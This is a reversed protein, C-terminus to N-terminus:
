CPPKTQDWVVSSLLPHGDPSWAPGIEESPSKTRRLPSGSGIQRIYIGWDGRGGDAVYAVQNGDPSFSPADEFGPDTTLPIAAMALPSPKSGPRVLWLLGAVAIALLLIGVAWVLGLRRKHQPIEAAALRGLNGEEKLEQLAVKLDAMTQWRRERDKRLCRNIIQEAEPPLGEVIQGVPKPEERLIASLTAMNSDGQFARRGTVMEYLLSGFSFIDSAPM